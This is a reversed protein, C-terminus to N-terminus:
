FDIGFKLGFGYGDEDSVDLVGNEGRTMTKTM